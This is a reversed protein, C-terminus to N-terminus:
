TIFFNLIFGHLIELLHAFLKAILFIQLRRCSAQMMMIAFFCSSAARCTSCSGKVFVVAAQAAVQLARV